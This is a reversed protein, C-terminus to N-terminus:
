VGASLISTIMEEAYPFIDRPAEPRLKRAQSEAAEAAGSNLLNRITALTLLTNEPFAEHFSNLLSQGTTTQTVRDYLTTSRILYSTEVESLRASANLGAQAALIAGALARPCHCFNLRNFVDSTITHNIMSLYHRNHAPSRKRLTTLVELVTRARHLATHKALVEARGSNAIERMKKPSSLLHNIKDRADQVDDPRYSVLHVGETFLDFLGNKTNETLLLSGCMMTEFVRFNLDGKVTQNVVIEAHPFIEWYNGQTLHIETNKKLTNFFAVRRPNLRENLTGVFTTNWRKNDSPLVWRPAWLPHWSTPTGTNDFFSLYDKQAVFIHDFLPAMYSHMLHHHHTDVSFFAAPIDLSEFGGILLSPSSNDHWLIVDPEFGNLSTIVSNIHHTRGPIRHELHPESGCTVVEHGLERFEAAFWDQNFILIKM